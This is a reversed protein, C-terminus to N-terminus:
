QKKKMLHNLITKWLSKQHLRNTCMLGDYEFWGKVGQYIDMVPSVNWDATKQHKIYILKKEICYEVLNMMRRM